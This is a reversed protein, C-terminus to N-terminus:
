GFRHWVAQRSVGLAVGIEAWSLERERLIDIIRQMGETTHDYVQNQLRLIKLLQDTPVGELKPPEVASQEGAKPPNNADKNIIDQCVAVCEDCIFMSPGAILKKVEHQSKGCFSCHLTRKSRDPPSETTAQAEAM